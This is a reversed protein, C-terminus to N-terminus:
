MNALLSTQRLIDVYTTAMLFGIVVCKLNQKIREENEIKMM